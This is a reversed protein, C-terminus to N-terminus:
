TNIGEDLRADPPECLMQAPVYETAQLTAATLGGAVAVFCLVLRLM